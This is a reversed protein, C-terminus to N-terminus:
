GGENTQRSLIISSKERALFHIAVFNGLQLRVLLSRTHLRLTYEKQNKFNSQKEFNIPFCAENLFLGVSSGWVHSYFSIKGNPHQIYHECSCYIFFLKSLTLVSPLFESFLRTLQKSLPSYFCFCIIGGIM